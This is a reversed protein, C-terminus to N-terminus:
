EADLLENSGVLTRSEVNTGETLTGDAEVLTVRVNM